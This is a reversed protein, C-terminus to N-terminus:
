GRAPAEGQENGFLGDRVRNVCDFFEPTRMMGLSRSAVAARRHHLHHPGSASEHCVRSGVHVRSRRDIRVLLATTGSEAWIRLLELNM